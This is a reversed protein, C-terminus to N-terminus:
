KMSKAVEFLPSDAGNFEVKVFIQIAALIFSLSIKDSINLRKFKILRLLTVVNFEAYM